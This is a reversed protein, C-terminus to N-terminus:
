DRAAGFHQTSVNKIRSVARHLASSPQQSRTARYTTGFNIYISLIRAWLLTFVFGYKYPKSPMYTRAKSRAKTAVTM